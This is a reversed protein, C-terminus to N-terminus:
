LKESFKKIAYSGGERWAKDMWKPSGKPNWDHSIPKGRKGPPRNSWNFSEHLWAAYETYYGYTLTFKSGGQTIKFDRSKVLDWTDVPVYKDATSGLVQYMSYLGKKINDPLTKEAMKSLKKNVDSPTKGKVFPM